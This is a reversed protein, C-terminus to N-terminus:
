LCVTFVAAICPLGWDYGKTGEYLKNGLKAQFGSGEVEGSGCFCGCIREQPTHFKTILPKHQPNSAGRLCRGAGLAQPVGCRRSGLGPM